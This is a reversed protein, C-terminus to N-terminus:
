LKKYIYLKLFNQLKRRTLKNLKNLIEKQLKQGIKFYRLLQILIVKALKYVFIYKKKLQNM